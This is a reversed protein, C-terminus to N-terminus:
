RTIYYAVIPMSLGKRTIIEVEEPLSLAWTWVLATFVAVSCYATLTVEQALLPAGHASAPNFIPGLQNSSAADLPTM